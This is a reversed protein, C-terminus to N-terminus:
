RTHNDGTDRRSGNKGGSTIEASFAVGSLMEHVMDFEGLRFGLEAHHRLGGASPTV